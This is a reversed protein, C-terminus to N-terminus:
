NRRQAIRVTTTTLQLSIGHGCAKSDLKNVTTAMRGAQNKQVGEVSSTPSLQDVGESPEAALVFRCHVSPHVKKSTDPM